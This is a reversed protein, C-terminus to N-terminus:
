TDDLKHRSVEKFLYAKIYRYVVGLQVHLFANNAMPM